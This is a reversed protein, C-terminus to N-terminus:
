DSYMEHILDTECQGPAWGAYLSMTEVLQESTLSEEMEHMATKAQNQINVDPMLSYRMDGTAALRYWVYAKIRNQYINQASMYINGVYIQAKGHGNDASRCLWIMDEQKRGYEDFLRWQSHPDGTEAMQRLHPLLDGNPVRLNSTFPPFLPQKEYSALRQNTDFNLILESCEIEGGIGDNLQSVIDIYLEAGTLCSRYSIDSKYQREPRGLIRIVEDKNANKDVLAKIKREPIYVGHPHPPIPMVCGVTICALLLSAVWVSKIDSM